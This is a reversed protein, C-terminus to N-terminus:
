DVVRALEEVSEVDVVRVRLSEAPWDVGQLKEELLV